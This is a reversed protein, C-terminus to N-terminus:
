DARGVPHFDIAVPFRPIGDPTPAFHRITVQRRDGWTQADALLKRTFAQDGRIGAGVERGDALAFVARKAYGAWNGSGEEVRLLSFETTVFEKRKLLTKSRKDAEYPGNRRVMQGEYGAQLYEGYLADLEEASVASRTPVAVVSPIAGAGFMAHVSEARAAFPKESVIDYCHFQIVARAEAREEDTSAERRVISTIANFNDRHDHNYLEGDLVLDPHAAFVPALAELIHEVNQHRQYERSFAGHRSVLARIGDLKPQSYIPFSVAKEKSFDKALMPSIPVADLEEVTRRYERDLKKKEEAQAEALAQAEATTENSRGINKPETVTWASTVLNGGFLGAITRYQPGDVEYQWTRTKGTSDRKFILNSAPM